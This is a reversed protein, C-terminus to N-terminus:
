GSAVGRGLNEEELWAKVAELMKETTWGALEAENAIRDLSPWIAKRFDPQEEPSAVWAMGIMQELITAPVAAKGAAMRQATRPNLEFYDALKAVWGDGWIREGLERFEAPSRAMEFVM